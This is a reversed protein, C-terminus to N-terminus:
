SIKEGRNINLILNTNTYSVYTESQLAKIFDDLERRTRFKASIVADFNGTIDYIIFVNKHNIYDQYLIPFKGKEIKVFILVEINYGLKEYDVLVSYKKIFREKEMKKIHNTVNGLSIRLKKAIERYPTKANYLLIDIIRNNIDQKKIANKNM